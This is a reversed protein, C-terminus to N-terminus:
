NFKAMIEDALRVLGIKRLTDILTKWSIPHKGGGQLWRKIIECNIDVSNKSREKEFASTIAGDNDELLNAGLDNYKTGIREIIKIGAFETLEPLTPPNSIINHRLSEQVSRRPTNFHNPTSQYTVNLNDDLECRVDEALQILGITELVEILSKWTIPIKGEGQLWRNFIEYNILCLDNGYERKIATTKEGNDDLLLHEGLKRYQDGIRAIINIHGAFVPLQWVMPSSNIDDRQRARRRRDTLDRYDRCRCCYWPSVYTRQQCCCNITAMDRGYNSLLEHLQSVIYWTSRSVEESALAHLREIRLGTVPDIIVLTYMYM